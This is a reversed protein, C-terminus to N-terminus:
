ENPEWYLEEDSEIYDELYEAIQQSGPASDLVDEMAIDGLSINEALENPTLDFEDTQLYAELVEGKIDGFEPSNAPSSPSWLLLILVAAAAATISLLRVSRLSRVPTDKKKLRNELRDGFTDFYGEPTRFGRDTPTSNKQLEGVRRTIRDPFEEFYGKPTKFGNHGSRLEM